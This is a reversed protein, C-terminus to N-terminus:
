YNYYQKYKNHFQYAGAFYTRTRIMVVALVRLISDILGIYGLIKFAM